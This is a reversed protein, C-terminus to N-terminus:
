RAADNAEAAREDVLFPGAGHSLRRALARRRGVRLLAAVAHIHREVSVGDTVPAVIPERRILRAWVWAGLTLALLTFVWPSAVPAMAWRDAGGAGARVEDFHVAGIGELIWSLWSSEAGLGLEELAQNSLTFGEDALVVVRGLGFRYTEVVDKDAVLEGEKEVRELFFDPLVITVPESEGPLEVVLTRPAYLARGGARIWDSFVAAEEDLMPVRPALLVWLGESPPTPLAHPRVQYGLRELVRAFGMVGSRASSQTSRLTGYVADAVEPPLPDAPPALAVAVVAITLWALTVCIAVLRARRM